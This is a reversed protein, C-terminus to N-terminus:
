GYMCGGTCTLLILFTDCFTQVFRAIDKRYISSKNGEYNLHAEAENGPSDVTGMWRKLYTKKMLNRLRGDREQVIRKEGIEAM